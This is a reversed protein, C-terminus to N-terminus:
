SSQVINSVPNQRRFRRLSARLLSVFEPRRVGWRWLRLWDSLSPSIGYFKSFMQLFLERHMSSPQDAYKEILRDCALRVRARFENATSQYMASTPPSM